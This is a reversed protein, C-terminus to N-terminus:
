AAVFNIAWSNELSTPGTPFLFIRASFTLFDIQRSLILESNPSRGDGSTLGRLFSASDGLLLM